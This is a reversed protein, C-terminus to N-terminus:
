FFASFNYADDAKQTQARQITARNINREKILVSNRKQVSPQVSTTQSFLKAKRSVMNRDESASGFTVKKVPRPAAQETERKRKVRNLPKRTVKANEQADQEDEQADQEDEDDKNGRSDLPNDRGGDNCGAISGENTPESVDDDQEENLRQWPEDLVAKRSELNGPVLKVLGGNKWMEKRPTSIALVSLEDAYMNEADDVCDVTTYPAPNRSPVSYRPFKETSWDRLVIRSAGTM